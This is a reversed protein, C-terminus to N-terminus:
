LVIPASSWQTRIRLTAATGARATAVVAAACAAVTIDEGTVAGVMTAAAEVATIGEETVAVAMTAAGEEEAETIDAM